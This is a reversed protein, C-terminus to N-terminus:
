AAQKWRYNRIIGGCRMDCVVDDQTFDADHEDPEPLGISRNDLGRHPRCVNYYGDVYERLLYMLHDYGLATFYDLCEPKITKVFSEAYGNMEPVKVASLVIDIDVAEFVADFGGLFKQDHNRILHTVGLGINEAHMCFNRAQQAMWHKKPHPTAGAIYVQRTGIHKFFLVYYDQEGRGLTKIKKTFFDCAWLTAQHSQILEHWTGPGRNPEPDFGHTIMTNGVTTRSVRKGLGMKRLEGYIRTKSWLRNETAMRLILLEIAEATLPRGRKHPKTRPAIGHPKKDWRQYTQSTVILVLDEAHEGLAKKAALM